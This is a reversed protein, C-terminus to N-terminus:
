LQRLKPDLKDRLWDGFLNFSLVTLALFVGPILSLWWHTAIFSRGEAIMQGWAPTPPPVGAGLFSLSAEAIIITGVQLSVLVIFTSFVNPLIHVRMIRWNSCGSVKAQLVYDRNKLALTDGRMIRSFRTWMLASLAIIVTRLSPGLAVAMVLALLIMPIAMLSDVLRMIVTDVVGGMYGSIIGLTLGITGGIGVVSFAVILSIRAGFFIRTLMDRGLYDTGLLYKLSGGEVWAPPLLRVSLAPAYPDYPTLLPAFIAIFFLGSLIIAPLWPFRKLGGIWEAQKGKAVAVVEQEVLM